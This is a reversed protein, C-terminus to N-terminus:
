IKSQIDYIPFKPQCILGSPSEVQFASTQNCYRCDLNSTAANLPTPPYCGICLEHCPACVKPAGNLPYHSLISCEVKCTNDELMDLGFCRTCTRPNEHCEQCSGICTHCVDYKMYGKYSLGGSTVPLCKSCPSNQTCECEARCRMSLGTDINYWTNAPLLNLKVCTDDIRKYSGPVCQFCNLGTNSVSPNNSGQLLWSTFCSEQYQCTQGM